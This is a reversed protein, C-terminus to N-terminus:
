PRVQSQSLPYKLILVRVKKRAFVSIASIAIDESEDLSKTVLM